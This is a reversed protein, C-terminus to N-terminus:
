EDAAKVAVFFVSQYRWEQGFQVSGSKADPEGTVAISTAIAKMKKTIDFNESRSASLTEDRTSANECQPNIGASLPHNTHRISFLYITREGTDPRMAAATAFAFAYGTLNM